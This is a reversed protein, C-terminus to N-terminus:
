HRRRQQELREDIITDSVWLFEVVAEMGGLISYFDEEQIPPNPEHSYMHRLEFLRQVNGLVWNSVEEDDQEFLSRRTELKPRMEKFVKLFDEGMITSMNFDIDALKNITLLHAVFEGLSLSHRQLSIATEISFKVDFKSANERYPSGYDILDAFALRFYGELCAIAGIPIYRM